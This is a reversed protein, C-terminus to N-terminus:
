KIRNFIIFGHYILDSNLNIGKEGKFLYPDTDKRKSSIKEEYEIQLESDSAPRLFINLYSYVGDAGFSLLEEGNYFSKTFELLPESYPDYVNEKIDFLWYSVKYKYKDIGNSIGQFIYHEVISVYYKGSESQFVKMPNNNFCTDSLIDSFSINDVTEVFEGYIWGTENRYRIELWYNTYEGIESPENQFDLIFVPNGPNLQGIISSELKPDLRFNVHNDNVVGYHKGIYPNIINRSKDFITDAHISLANTLLFILIIRNLM